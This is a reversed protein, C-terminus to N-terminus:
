EKIFKQFAPNSEWKQDSVLEIFDRIVEMNNKNHIFGIPDNDKLLEAILNLLLFAIKEDILFTESDKQICVIPLEDVM